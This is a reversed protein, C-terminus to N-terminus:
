RLQSRALDDPAVVTLEFDNALHVPWPYGLRRSIEALARAWTLDAPTRLRGGPRAFLFAVSDPAVSELVQLLGARMDDEWELPSEHVPAILEIRGAADLFLMWLQPDAFGLKGMLMRWTHELSRQDTIPPMQDVPVMEPIEHTMGLDHASGISGRERL